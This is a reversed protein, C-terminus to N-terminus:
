RRRNFGVAVLVCGVGLVAGGVWPPITREQRVNAEFGGIKLVSQESSYTPPKILVYFGAAILLAGAVQLMRNMM